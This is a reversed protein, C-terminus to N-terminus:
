KVEIEFRKVGCPKYSVNKPQGAKDLFNDNIKVTRGNSIAITCNTGLSEILQREIMDAESYLAKADARKKEWSQVKLEVEAASIRVAKGNGHHGNGNAKGNTGKHGGNGNTGRTRNNAPAELSSVVM